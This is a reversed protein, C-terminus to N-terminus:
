VRRPASFLAVQQAAAPERQKVNASMLAVNIVAIPLYLAWNYGPAQLYPNSAAAALMAICGVTAVALCGAVDPRLKVARRAAYVLVGTAALAFIVGLIGTDFLLMHYQLEFEWPKMEDRWYDPLTAGLGSGAIPHARFGALLNRSEEQRILTDLNSATGTGLYTAGLTRFASTIASGSVTSSKFSFNGVVIVGVVMAVILWGRRVRARALEAPAMANRDAGARGIVLSAFWLIAPALITTILIAQRGAILAAVTCSVAALLRMRISPLLKAHPVLLSAVWIPAGAALTALGYFQVVPGVRGVRTDTFFADTQSQLFRVPIIQPLAGQQNGVYAVITLAVIICGIALAWMVRELAIEGIGYIMLWFVIPFGLFTLLQDSLGANGFGVLGFTIGFLLEIGLFVVLPCAIWRHRVIGVAVGCMALGILVPLLIKGNSVPRFLVYVFATLPLLAPGLRHATGTVTSLMSADALRGGYRPRAQRLEYRRLPLSVTTRAVQADDLVQFPM